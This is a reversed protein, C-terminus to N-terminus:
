LALPTGTVKIFVVSHPPLIGTLENGSFEVPLTQVGDEKRALLPTGDPDDHSLVTADLGAGKFGTLTARFPVPTDWLGNAAVLYVAQGDASLTALLPTAPMPKANAYQPDDSRHFPATGSFDIVSKGVHRNFYYYLWYLMFRQDPVDQALIGFGQQSVRCLMQWSSAGRLMGERAYYILRVGRHVAGFVNANRDIADAREGDPGLTHMGWETDYQYVDRGPNYADVLANLRLVGRLAEDNLTLAVDEFADGQAGFGAYHHAVVFDYHGAAHKLLYSGWSVNGPNMSLGVHADPDVSKVAKSVEIFHRLYDDPTPFATKNGWLSAYVENGVEWLRFGYGKSQAYRVARAWTEPPLDADAQVAELELPVTEPPVGIRACLAAARDLAAELGFPEEGVAYFRTMPLRLARMAEEIKPHLTYDGARNYPQGTWGGLRHFSIGGALTTAPRISQAVDVVVDLSDGPTLRHELTKPTLTSEDVLREAPDVEESTVRLDDVCLTAAESRDV